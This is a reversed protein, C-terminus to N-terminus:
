RLYPLTKSMAPIITTNKIFQIFEKKKRKSVAKNSTNVFEKMENMKNRKQLDGSANKSNFFREYSLKNNIGMYSYLEAFFISPDSVMSEYEFCKVKNDKLSQIYKHYSKFFVGLPENRSLWVDLPNRILAFVTDPKVRSISLQYSPKYDNLFHPSFDIFTWDRVIVNKNTIAQIEHLSEIESSFDHSNTKIDYWTSLQKKIGGKKMAPLDRSAGSGLKNVESIIIIQDDNALARNLLTGGSRAYNFFLIM